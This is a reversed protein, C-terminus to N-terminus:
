KKKKNNGAAANSKKPLSLQDGPHILDGKLKPNAKRLEDLTVGNKRAIRELSEGESVTHTSAKQNKKNDAKTDKKDTKTDKKNNSATKTNNEKKANAAPKRTTTETKKTNNATTQAAPKQQTQAPKQQTQAVPKQQQTQAAPKQQQTQTQTNAAQLSTDSRRRRPVIAEEEPPLDATLDSVAEVVPLPEIIEIAEGEYDGDLQDDPTGGPTADMRRAYKEKEYALIQDQSVIFAHMQQSPLILNYPRQSTAPIVDARFQPNLIRIEEVPIDLVAAIQNFHIRDTIHLSDTILPKKILVPSIDHEPYYNMVYNAAIFKPVYGRTEAPLYYYISWFDHDAPDGGARNLAKNVNGPGCNYAAIALSWDGYTEYLDKLMKCAKQSSIYPDRREDVLSSVEMDYGKATSIIFQWLGAAGHKSVANPDLGSEIVPLYKLELPLGNEELAQEFIPMYYSSLGLLLTVKKRGKKTYQEIYSKVIDNFPMDIVTPLAALRERIEKDSAGPDRNSTSELDASTYNKLYWRELLEQSESEFSEPYIINSDQISYKLDLVNAKKDQAAAPLILLSAAAAIFFRNYINNKMNM